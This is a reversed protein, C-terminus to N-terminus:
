RVTFNRTSHAFEGSVDEWGGVKPKQLQVTVTYSGATLGQIRFPKDQDILTDLHGPITVRLKYNSGLPANNLIFDLPVNASPYFDPSNHEPLNLIVMPTDENKQWVGNNLSYAVAAQPYKMSVQYKLQTPNFVLYGRVVKPAAGTTLTGNYGRQSYRRDYSNYNMPNDDVIVALYHGTGPTLKEATDKDKQTSPTCPLSATGSSTAIVAVKYGTSIYTPIFTAIKPQSDSSLYCCSDCPVLTVAQTMVIQKGAAATDRGKPEEMKKDGSCGAAALTLAMVMFWWQFKQQFKAKKSKM